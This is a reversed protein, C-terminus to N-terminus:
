RGSASGAVSRPPPSVAAGQLAGRLHLLGSGPLARRACLSLTRAGVVRDAAMRRLGASYDTQQRGAATGACGSYLIAVARLFLIGPQRGRSEPADVLTSVLRGAGATGCFGEDM